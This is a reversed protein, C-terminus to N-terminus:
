KVNALLARDIVIAAVRTLDEIPWDRMMVWYEGESM